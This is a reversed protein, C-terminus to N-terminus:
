KLFLMKKVSVFRQPESNDGALPITEATLRYFYMGSGLSQANFTVKNSYDDVKKMDLLTAVEQGLISFVKLTVMSATPLTFKITTTPNFPNPYNESLSFIHPIQETQEERKLTPNVLNVFYSAPETIEKPVGNYASLRSPYKRGTSIFNWSLNMKEANFPVTNTVRFRGLRTGNGVNSIVTGNGSSPNARPATRLINNVTDVIFSAPVQTALFESSGPVISFTLSGSNRIAKNFNLGIQTNAVVVTDNITKLYVDFEYVNPSVLADNMLTFKYTPTMHNKYVKNVKKLNKSINNGALMTTNEPTVAYIFSASNNDVFNMDLGDTWSDGNMDSVYYGYAFIAANNDVVNMDLGDVWGDKACDGSYICWKTGKQIMNSGYAKNAATTFDYTLSSSTFTQASASWTEITNRHKIVIYYPTGNAAARFIGTGQGTTSLVVSDHDVEAFPTTSNHLEIRVTDSVMTGSSQNFFGELFLKLSLQLRFNGFNNNTSVTGSVINISYTSPTSTQIWGAQQVESVVYTGVTLNAFTYNGSVDTLASDVQVGSKTLRIKWNQLAPEGGDKTGNKNYDNFKQGSISGSQFNGFNNNVSATGSTVIITHTSPSSTQVWGAQLQESVIYIGSTLNTFSYNGNVDTLLSDVQVGSKTLRIKWNQLAPESGGKSGNGDLDNYKMGNISGLQFNGFNSNSSVMGSTVVISFTSPSSTQVWGTQLQESVIYTGATLNSFSYNGNVDTLMSDIQVGSKTLRIKWSELGPESGGKSGNGDVDNYKLGNISSLQFNGFNNGNSVTGSTVVISYTSPSSTQIWGSQLEESVFYTGATLNSFSYNGNVDTLTSDVQVGSKTLRIKWNQLGPESGGKSGDGNVDNYKLGNISGLQFNGFDNGTSGTGGSIVISYTSPTSTQMWGSQLQESVVYTAAILNTFTYSGDSATLVSDVQSGDKSLRIRWNQLGTEGGDKAGNGDVDNFKLGSISVNLIPNVLNVKHSDPVTIETATTGIYASLKTAFKPPTGIFNWSVNPNVTGFAVPNTVRLRGFRTGNGSNSIITGSGAGPNPMASIRLLSNGTDVSFRGSTPIQSPLFESTGAVLSFTPMTGARMTGNFNLGVQFNAVELATAGTRKLYIDFEYVTSSVQRDNMLRAEYTPTQASALGVIILILSLLLFNKM